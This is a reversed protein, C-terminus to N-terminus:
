TEPVPELLGADLAEALDRMAAAPPQESVVALTVLDFQSGICAARKLINRTSAAFRQVKSAMLEIVNDTMEHAQVQELTWLWRRHEYDFTIMGEDYLAQLFEHLFFPNGGTKAAILEALPRAHKIACQLTEAVLRTVASVELPGLDIHQTSAGAQKLRQWLAPLPHDTALDNDRALLLVLMHQNRSTLLLRELLNLSAADAWQANDLVLALPHAAQAFARLCRQLALSFRNQAEAPGLTPLEPQTGIILELEPLVDILVQGSRGLAAGLREHWAAIDAESGTLLQQVLVRLAEIIAAYPTGHQVPQFQGAVFFGGQQTVPRRLEAALASKGM